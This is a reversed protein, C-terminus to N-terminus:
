MVEEDELTPNNNSKERRNRLMNKYRERAVEAKKENIKSTEIKDKILRREANKRIKARYQERDKEIKSKGFLEKGAYIFAGIGVVGLIAVIAIMLGAFFVM